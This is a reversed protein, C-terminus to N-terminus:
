KLRIFTDARVAKPSILWQNWSGSAFGELAEALISAIPEDRVLLKGHLRDKTYVCFVSKPTMKRLAGCRKPTDKKPGTAQDAWGARGPKPLVQKRRMADM